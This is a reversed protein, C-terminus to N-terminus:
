IKSELWANLDHYPADSNDTYDTLSIGEDEASWEILQAVKELEGFNGEILEARKEFFENITNPVLRNPAGPTELAKILISEANAQKLLQENSSRLEELEALAEEYKQELEANKNMASLFEHALIKENETPM